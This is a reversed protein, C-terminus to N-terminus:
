IFALPRSLSFPEKQHYFTTSLLIYIERVTTFGEPLRAQRVLIAVVFYAVSLLGDNMDSAVAEETHRDKGVLRTQRPSCFGRSKSEESAGGRPELKVEEAKLGKGLERQCAM